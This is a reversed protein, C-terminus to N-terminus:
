IDFKLNYIWEPSLIPKNGDFLSGSDAGEFSQIEANMYTLNGGFELWSTPLYAWEMEVGTRFSNEINVRRSLGFNLIEGVPVIENEFDLYFFNSNLSLNRKSYKM